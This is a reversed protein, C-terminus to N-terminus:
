IMYATDKEKDFIDVFVALYSGDLDFRKKEEFRDPFQELLKQMRQPM